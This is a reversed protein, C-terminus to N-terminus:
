PLRSEEFRWTYGVAFIFIEDKVREDYGLRQLTRARDVAENRRWTLYEIMRASDYLLIPIWGHKGEGFREGVFWLGSEVTTMYATVLWRSPCPGIIANLERCEEGVTYTQRMDVVLEKKMEWFREQWLPMNQSANWAYRPKEKLALLEDPFMVAGAVGPLSVLAACLSM